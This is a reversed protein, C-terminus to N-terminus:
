SCFRTRIKMTAPEKWWEAECLPGGEERLFALLCDNVMEDFEREIIMIYSLYQLFESLNYVIRLDRKSLSFLSAKVAFGNRGRQKKSIYPFIVAFYHRKGQM